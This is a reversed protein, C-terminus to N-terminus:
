LSFRGIHITANPLVALLKWGRAPRDEKLAVANFFVDKKNIREYNVCLWISFEVISDAFPVLFIQMDCTKYMLM